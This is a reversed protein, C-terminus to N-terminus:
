TATGVIRDDFKLPFGFGVPVSVYQIQALTGQLVLWKILRVDDSEIAALCSIQLM